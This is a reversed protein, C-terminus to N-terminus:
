TKRYPQEGLVSLLTNVDKLALAFAARIPTRSKEDLAFSYLDGTKDIALTDCDIARARNRELQVTGVYIYDRIQPIYIGLAHIARGELLLL